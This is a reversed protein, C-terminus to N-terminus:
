YGESPQTELYKQNKKIDPPYHIEYVKINDNDEKDIPYVQVFAESYKNRMFLKVSLSNWSLSSIYSATELTLYEHHKTYVCLVGGYSNEIQEMFLPSIKNLSDSYALCPLKVTDGNKLHAVVSTANIDSPAEIYAFPTNKLEVLRWPKGAPTRLIRLRTSQFERDGTEDSGIISYVRANEFLDRKTLLLHTASHTKLFELAERESQACFVHHFYLHIWRPLYHDPDTITKVDALVNLQGGYNWSAAVVADRPIKTKMWHYANAIPTLGPIPGRIHKATNFLDKAYAGALSWFFLLALMTCALSTKLLSHSVHQRFKDTTYQSTRIKQSLMNASTQIFAATFFAFPVGMFFQYRIADRSLAAWCLFWAGFAVYIFKNQRNENYRWAVLLFGIITGAVSIFFLWNGLEFSWLTGLPEQFFVTLTFLTLPIAFLFHRLKEGPHIATLAFAFSAVIFIGGYRDRWYELPPAKLESVFQMFPTQNFPVTTYAFTDLQSLVYILPGCLYILTLSLALTRAHSKLKRAFPTRTILLYRLIRLILLALPPVLVFAAVHTAFWKGQRYVPSAFYLTPVFTLVWILYHWLREETESTLFRWIEVCLIVLLFVGFGEWSLGGLFMTAGSALTFFWQWRSTQARLSTLYTVIALIGLMLCWSDRDSFGAVSREITGPLTALLVGVTGSFLMGFARYLFFCIVSFGIAFCVVSTYLTVQYLSVNPFVLAIAKYTYTVAYAYFPLIQSLDRGHPVWRTVDIHPLSGHESIHKALDYYFYSDNGIFQGPPIKPVVLCRLWVAFSLIILFLIGLGIHRIHPNKM